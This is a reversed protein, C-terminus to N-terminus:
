LVLGILHEPLLNTALNIEENTKFSAFVDMGASLDYMNRNSNDTYLLVLAYIKRKMKNAEKMVMFYGIDQLLSFLGSLCLLLIFLLWSEASAYGLDSKM